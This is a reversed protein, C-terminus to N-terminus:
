KDEISPRKSDQSKIKPGPPSIPRDHTKDLHGLGKKDAMINYINRSWVTYNGSGTLEEFKSTKYSFLKAM